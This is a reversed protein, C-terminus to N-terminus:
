GSPPAVIQAVMTDLLAQLDGGANNEMALGFSEAPTWFSNLVDNQPHAYVNQEALAALAIDAKVSPREAAAINSPGLGRTEFRRAQNEENTLWDALDMAHTPLKTLSSVGVLKYGGFSAMQIEEGGASFSPLKTASLRDGLKERFIEANWTGSVGAAISAGMGGQFVPDDGTMFVPSSTFARIAEAAKLGDASNFDCIQGGDEGISLSCGAGLFFGAIYWGNSVDMFIKKGAAVAVEVMRDLSLADEASFVSNDYYLFYGNDATMPYGYLRGEFSASDISAPLNRAEIDDKNRTIEYLAEAEALARLHDNSYMFVDAAAAPDEMIRDRADAESVVGYEFSYSRGPNADAFAECMERLNAQEEQPGWVRLAVNASHVSDRDADYGAGGCAALLFAPLLVAAATALARSLIRKGM